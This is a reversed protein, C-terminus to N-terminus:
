WHQLMEEAELGAQGSWAGDAQHLLIRDEGCCVERWPFPPFIM